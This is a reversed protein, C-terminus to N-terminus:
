FTECHRKSNVNYEELLNVKVFGLYEGEFEVMYGLRENERNFVLGLVRKLVM